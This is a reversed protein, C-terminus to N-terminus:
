CAVVVFYWIYLGLIIPLLIKGIMRPKRAAATYRSSYFPWWIDMMLLIHDKSKKEEDTAHRFALISLILYVVALFIAASLIVGKAIM